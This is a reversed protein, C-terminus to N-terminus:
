REAKGKLDGRRGKVEADEEKVGVLKIDETVTM